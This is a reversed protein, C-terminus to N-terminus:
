AAQRRRRRSLLGLGFLGVGFLALSGPEPVAAHVTTIDVVLTTGGAVACTPGPIPACDAFVDVSNATFSLAPATSFGGGTISNVTVGTITGPGDPPQWDLNTFSFNSQFGFDFFFTISTAGVDISSLSGAGGFALFLQTSVLSPTGGPDLTDGIFFEAGPDVVKTNDVFPGFGTTLTFPDGILSAKAGQPLALLGGLVVVAALAALWGRSYGLKQRMQRM